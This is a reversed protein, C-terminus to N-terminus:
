LWRLAGHLGDHQLVNLCIWAKHMLIGLGFFCVQILQLLRELTPADIGFILSLADDQCMRRQVSGPPFTVKCAYFLERFTAREMGEANYIASTDTIDEPGNLIPSPPPGPDSVVSTPHPAAQPDAVLPLMNALTETPQRIPAQHLCGLKMLQPSGNAGVQEFPWVFDYCISTVNIKRAKGVDYWWSACYAAANNYSYQL